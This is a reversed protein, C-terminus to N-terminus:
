SAQLPRNQCGRGSSFFDSHISRQNKAKGGSREGFFAKGIAAGAKSAIGEAKSVDSQFSSTDGSIRYVVKGVEPM